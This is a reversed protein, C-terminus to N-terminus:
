LSKPKENRLKHKQSKITKLSIKAGRTNDSRGESKITLIGQKLINKAANIDRDHIEGCEKCVWKRDKLQLGENISNCSSCSKSSPYFRNIQILQKDNYKCKYDLFNILNGWSIDQISKSLKPNKIMGKVNLNEICILDYNSVLYHSIKHLNDMRSNTIKEHIQAVKLRQKNYRNSGYTKRSLHKQHKALEKEYQKFYKHNKFKQGENTILQDKIGLDIGIQKNTKVFPSYQEKVVLSVFYKNTSSKSITANLITGNIERHKIFKIGNKFKPINLLNSDISVYQPIHFSSKNKKSKFKPFKALGKFFRLYAVELNTLSAQLSQSNIEKLWNYGEMKKLDTLYKAQQNFILKNGKLYEEKRQNLFYNYVFRNCGLHKDLLTKQENTPQLKFKYTKIIEKM